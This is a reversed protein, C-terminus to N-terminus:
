KEVKPSKPIQFPEVPAKGMEVYTAYGKPVEVTKNQASVTVLGDFCSITSSDKDGIEVRFETGRVGAVSSATVVQLREAPKQSDTTILKSIFSDLSGKRLYVSPPSKEDKLSNIQLLSNENLRVTGTGEISLDAKAKDLTRVTDLPFLGHERKLPKWEQSGEAARWDVKGLLFNAFAIPAKGLHAPIVLELGPIILNPNPINNYKLLEKWRSPNSLHTKAIYSLTEGKKVVITKSGPPKEISNISFVSFLLLLIIILKLQYKVIEQWM